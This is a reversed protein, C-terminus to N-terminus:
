AGLSCLFAMTDVGDAFDSLQPIQAQGFPITQVSVICQIDDRQQLSSLLQGADDYYQYHLVSVASFPSENEVLLLFDNSLYPVKNLLYVALHYDYNNRYKHHHIVERYPEVSAFLISFDYNRPVWVQTVNRCGLGFYLFIDQALARLEDPTEKGSLVAVSTRNRRIIHPYKAFYQEFYRATNNSGTAIYADCQKLQESVVVQAAINPDWKQLQELLHPFLVADKSSLKIKLLHGSLYGCLFDHFGVLPINGAMTIGVHLPHVPLSYASLWLNLQNTPLFHQVIHQVAQDVHAPTFWQNVMVARNKAALWEESNGQMYAALHKLATLKQNLESMDEKKRVAFNYSQGLM